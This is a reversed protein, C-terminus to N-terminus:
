VTDEYQYLVVVDVNWDVQALDQEDACRVCEIGNGSRKQVSALDNM